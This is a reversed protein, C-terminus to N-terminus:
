SGLDQINRTEPGYGLIVLLQRRFYQYLLEPEQIDPELNNLRKFTEDLLHWLKEDREQGIVMKDFIKAMKYAIALTKLNKRIGLFKDISVADTLTNYVRGQIFEIETLYFLEVASRLKARMKRISRALVEIRGFHRTFVSFIQDAERFNEKKFIFGPTRYHAFM